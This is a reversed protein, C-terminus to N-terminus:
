PEVAKDEIFAATDPHSGAMSGPLENAFATFSNTPVCKEHSLMLRRM